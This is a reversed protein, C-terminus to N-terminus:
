DNTRSHLHSHKHSYPINTGYPNIYVEYERPNSEKRPEPIIVSKSSSYLAPPKPQDIITKPASSEPYVHGKANHFTITRGITMMTEYALDVNQHSVM